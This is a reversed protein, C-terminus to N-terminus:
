TATAHPWAAPPEAVARLVERIAESLPHKAATGALYGSTDIILRGM